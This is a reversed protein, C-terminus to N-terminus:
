ALGRFCFLLVLCVMLQAALVFVGDGAQVPPVRSPVTNVGECRGWARPPGGVM